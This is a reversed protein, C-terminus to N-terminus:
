RNVELNSLNVLGYGYINDSGKPGLDTASDTLVKKVDLDPDEKFIEMILAACGAVYPASASTGAFGNSIYSFTTVNDPAVLDPKLRGDETPGRSSYPQIEMTSINIAGVTIVNRCCGMMGISSNQVQHEDLDQTTFLHLRVPANQDDHDIYSRIKIQYIGDQPATLYITEVPKQDKHGRQLNDSTSYGSPLM